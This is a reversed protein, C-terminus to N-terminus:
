LPAAFHGGYILSQSVRTCNQCVKCSIKALRIANISFLAEKMFLQGSFTFIALFLVFANTKFFLLLAIFKLAFVLHGHNRLLMAPM